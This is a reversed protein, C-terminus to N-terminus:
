KKTTSSKKPAAKKAPTKTPTSEKDARYGAAKWFDASEDDVNIQHGTAPHTLKTM